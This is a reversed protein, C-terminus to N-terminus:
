ESCSSDCANDSDTSLCKPNQWVYACYSNYCIGGPFYAKTGEIRPTKNPDTVISSLIKKLKEDGLAQRLGGVYASAFRGNLFVMRELFEEKIGAPVESLLSSMQVLRAPIGPEEDALSSFSRSLAEAIKVAANRGLTKELPAVDGYVIRGNKLILNNLFELRNEVPIDRLVEGMAPVKAEFPSAIIEEHRSVGTQAIKANEVAINETIYTNLSKGGTSDFNVQVSEGKAGSAAAIVAFMAILINSKKM